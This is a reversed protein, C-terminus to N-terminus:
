WAALGRDRSPLGVAVLYLVQCGTGDLGLLRALADEFFGGTAQVCVGHAAGLLYLNQAIHGAEILIYRYGRAGYREQVRAPDGVLAFIAGANAMWTQGLAWSAVDDGFRGERVLALDHRPLNYRYAGAPIGDVRVAVVSVDIPYRAGASPAARHYLPAGKDTINMMSTRGCSFALLRTLLELPLMLGPDFSRSTRRWTIAQELSPWPAPALSPLPFRAVVNGSPVPPPLDASNGWDEISFSTQEFFDTAPDIPKTESGSLNGMSAETVSLPAPFLNLGSPDRVTDPHGMRSPADYLREGGLHLWQTGFDIPRM